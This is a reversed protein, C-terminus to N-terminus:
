EFGFGFGFCVDECPDIWGAATEKPYSTLAAETASRSGDDSSTSGNIHEQEVVVQETGPSFAAENVLESNNALKAM